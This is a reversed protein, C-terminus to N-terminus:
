RGPSFPSMPADDRHFECVQYLCHIHISRNLSSQRSINLIFSAVQIPCRTRLKVGNEKTEWSICNLEARSNFLYSLNQAHDPEFSGIQAALWAGHYLNDVFGVLQTVRPSMTKQHSSVQPPHNLAIPIFEQSTPSFDNLLMTTSESSLQSSWTCTRTNCGWLFM